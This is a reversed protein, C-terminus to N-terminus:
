VAAKEKFNVKSNLVAKSKYSLQLYLREQRREWSGWVNVEPVCWPATILGRSVLLSGPSRVWECVKPLNRNGWQHESNPGWRMRQAVFGDQLFPSQPLVLPPKQEWFAQFQSAVELEEGDGSM